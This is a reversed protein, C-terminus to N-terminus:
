DDGRKTKGGGAQEIQVLSPAYNLIVQSIGELSDTAEGEGSGVEDVKNDEGLIYIKDTIKYERRCQYRHHEQPELWREESFLQLDPSLDFALVKTWSVAAGKTTTDDIKNTVWIETKSEFDLQLLLSLNEGGRVASISLIEYRPRQYPLTVCLSSKETSFDFRLLSVGLHPKSKESAFLYLNGNMSVTQESYILTWGPTLDGDPITRTWRDSYNLEYIETDQGNPYFCLIKYIKKSCSNNEDQQYCYGLVFRVEYEKWRYGAEIWRTQGTLPNWVVIKSGYRPNKGVHNCLLLGDCHFVRGIDFQHSYDPDPLSLERKLVVSPVDGQLNISVPCIRYESTLMLPLYEKPAKHMHERAFRRDDKFLRNWRKSTSRLRKLNRAPVRCLIEDVLDNCLDPITM